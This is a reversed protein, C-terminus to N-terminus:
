EEPSKDAEKKRKKKPTTEALLANPSTVSFEQEELPRSSEYVIEQTDASPPEPDPNLVVIGETPSSLNHLVPNGRVKRFDEETPPIVGISACREILLEYTVIGTEELFNQLSSRRRRLLDTLAVRSLSKKQLRM